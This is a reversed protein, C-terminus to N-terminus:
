AMRVPNAPVVRLLIVWVSTSSRSSASTRLSPYERSLSSSSSPTRHIAAPTYSSVPVSCAPKDIEAGASRKRSSHIGMMNRILLCIEDAKPWSDMLAYNINRQLLLNKVGQHTRTLNYNHMAAYFTKVRNM